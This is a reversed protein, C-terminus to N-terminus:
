RNTPLVLPQHLELDQPIALRERLLSLTLRRNPVAKTSYLMDRVLDFMWIAEMLEARKDGFPDM